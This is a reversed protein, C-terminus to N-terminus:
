PGAQLTAAYAKQMGDEIQAILEPQAFMWRELHKERFGAPDYDPWLALFEEMAQAAERSQGLQAHAIARAYADAFYGPLNIRQAVEVAEAYHGQRYENFFSNFRYWGPHNPNLAMARTTLEISRIWDGGYGTLIGIMAMADSDRPNLAIAREAAARFAGLDRRFYQVEALVFHAYANDPELDVAKRASDLARDLSGPLPNYGHKYEETYIAALGARVDADGPALEVGHELATRTILHDEESIRQRYVFHRLITEYPSLELPSKLAVEASLDRMLAGYPDAVSSVVHDVLDDQIALLDAADWTRNYTEGWVQKDSGTDILRVTLRLTPGAKRLTGQLVFRVGEGPGAKPAVLIYSFRSLGSAIDEGLAAGLAAIEPDDDPVNIEAVAIRPTPDAAAAAESVNGQVDASEVGTEQLGPQGPRMISWLLITVLLLAAPIGILIARRNGHPRGAVPAPAAPRTAGKLTATVARKLDAVAPAEASGDWASLDIAHVQRFGMPPPDGDLCVPVLKGQKLAVAAEDKVWHSVSSAASWAVIVAGAAELEREIENSFDAGGVLQRDWWVSHGEAELLAALKEILGRDSRAYSIFVDAM